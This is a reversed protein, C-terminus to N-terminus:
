GSMEQLIELESVSTGAPSMPTPPRSTYYVCGYGTAEPRIKSGGFDYGKGTLVGVWENRIAQGVV